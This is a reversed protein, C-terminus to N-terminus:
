RSHTLAGAPIYWLVQVERLDRQPCVRVFQGASRPSCVDVPYRHRQQQQQQQQQQQHHMPAQSMLTSQQHHHHQSHEPAAIQSCTREADAGLSDLLEQQAKTHVAVEPAAAAAVSGDATSIEVDSEESSSSGSGSVSSSGGSSSVGSAVAGDERQLVQKSGAAVGNSGGSSGGNSSGSGSRRMSGFAEQVLQLLEATEQPGVVAV